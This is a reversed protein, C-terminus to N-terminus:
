WYHVMGLIDNHILLWQWSILREQLWEEVNIARTMVSWRHNGMAADNMTWGCTAECMRGEGTSCQAFDGARKRTTVAGPQSLQLWPHDIAIWPRKNHNLILSLMCGVSTPLYSHNISHYVTLITLITSLFTSSYSTYSHNISTLLLSPSSDHQKMSTIIIHGIM